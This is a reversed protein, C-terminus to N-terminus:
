LPFLREGTDADEMIIARYPCSQAARFTDGPAADKDELMELPAPDFVSKKKSWDLRFVGPALETCSASGMCLNWDTKVRVRRGELISRTWWGEEDSSMSRIQILVAVLVVAAAASAIPILDM